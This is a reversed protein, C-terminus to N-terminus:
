LYRSPYNHLHQNSDRMFIFAAKTHTEYFRAVFVIQKSDSVWLVFGHHCYRFPTMVDYDCILRLNNTKFIVGSSRPMSRRVPQMLDDCFAIM